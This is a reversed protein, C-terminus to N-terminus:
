KWGRSSYFNRGAQLADFIQKYLDPDNNNIHFCTKGKLCHLLAPSLKAKLTNNMYVPFYYFGVYGKQVLLSAFCLEPYKRGMIEVEKNYYVEFCGPIDSKVVFNGGAFGSLIKKIGQLIIAMEPQGASKDSYKLPKSKSTKTL